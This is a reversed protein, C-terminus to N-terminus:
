LNPSLWARFAQFPLGLKVGISYSISIGAATGTFASALALVYMMNGQFVNYGVYTLLVEDPVPLGIIGL